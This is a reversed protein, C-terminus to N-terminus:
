LNLTFAHKHYMTTLTVFHLGKPLHAIKMKNSKPSIKQVIEQRGKADTIYATLSPLNPIRDFVLQRDKVQMTAYLLMDREEAFVVTTGATNGTSAAVANPDDVKAIMDQARACSGTLVFLGALLLTKM